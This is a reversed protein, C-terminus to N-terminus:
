VQFVNIGTVSTLVQVGICVLTRHRYVGIMEKFTPIKRQMEYEIQDRMLSFEAQAEHSELDSRLRAFVSGAHDIKGDRVLQRPSDPMFTALGIFLIIGWPIQIALPLRWQVAGYPAYGCRTSHTFGTLVNVVVLMVVQSTM